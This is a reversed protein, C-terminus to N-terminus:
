IKYIKYKTYKIYKGNEMKMVHEKTLSKLIITPLRKEDLHRQRHIIFPGSDQVSELSCGGKLHKSQM